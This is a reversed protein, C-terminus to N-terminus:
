TFRALARVSPATLKPSVSVFEAAPQVSSLLPLAALVRVSLPPESVIVALSRPTPLVADILAMMNSGRGSILIAVRKKM